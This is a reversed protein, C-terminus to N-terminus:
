LIVQIELCNIQKQNNESTTIKFLLYTVRKMIFLITTELSKSVSTQEEKNYKM